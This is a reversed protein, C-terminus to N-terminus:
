EQLIAPTGPAVLSALETADWNTLRICGHSQTKGITAPEPTGHIGYHEKSLDIWVVGVPNNPGPAIKAKGHGPEADWFLDPNYNFTPDHSVGKITWQGLPLPDHASGTTAPYSALVSGDQALAMVTGDSKDVVIRAAKGAPASGLVNPVRISQGATFSVGPNLSSLLRPSCHFKEGLAEEVSSYGLHELKAKEMMDEPVKVFPGKVDDATLTYAVLTPAHDASLAQWSPDAAAAAPSTGVRNTNFAAVARRMNSGQLGDIQGPSFGARDLLVQVRLPTKQEAAGSEDAPSPAAEASPGGPMGSPLPTATLATGSADSPAGSPAASPAAPLSVAPPAAPSASAQGPTLIPAPQQSAQTKGCAGALAALALAAMLTTRTREGRAM